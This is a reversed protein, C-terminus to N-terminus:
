QELFFAFYLCTQLEDIAFVFGGLCTFSPLPVPLNRLFPGLCPCITPVTHWMFAMHFAYNVPSVSSVYHSPILIASSKKNQRRIDPTRWADMDGTFLDSTQMTSTSCKILHLCLIWQFCAAIGIVLVWQLLPGWLNKRVLNVTLLTCSSIM